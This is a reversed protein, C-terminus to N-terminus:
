KEPPIGYGYFQITTIKEAIQEIDDCDDEMIKYLITMLMGGVVVLSSYGVDINRILGIKQLVNQEIKVLNLTADVTQKLLGHMDIDFSSPERMLMLFLDRNEKVTKFTNYNKQLIFNYADNEDYEGHIGQPLKRDHIGERVIESLKEQFNSIVLDFIEKKNKFHLYLTRPAIGSAACIDEVTTDKFGKNAFISRAAEAIMARRNEKSMYTRSVKESSKSM